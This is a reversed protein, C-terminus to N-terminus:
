VFASCNFILQIEQQLFAINLWRSWNWRKWCSESILVNMTQVFMSLKTTSISLISRSYKIWWSQWSIKTAKMWCSRLSIYYLRSRQQCRSSDFCPIISYVIASYLSTVERLESFDTQRHCFFRCHFTQFTQTDTECRRCKFNVYCLLASCRM